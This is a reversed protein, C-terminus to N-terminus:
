KDVTKRETTNGREGYGYCLDHPLCCKYTINKSECDTFFGMIEDPLGSCGDFKWPKYKDPNSQIRKVLYDPDFHKYLALAQETTVIDNIQPLKM